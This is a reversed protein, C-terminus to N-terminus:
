EAVDQGEKPTEAAAAERARDIETLRSLRLFEVIGRAAAADDGLYTISEVRLRYGDDRRKRPM